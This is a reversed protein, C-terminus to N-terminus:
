KTELTPKSAKAKPAPPTHEDAVDSKLFASAQWPPIDKGVVLVTGALERKGYINKAINLKIFGSM